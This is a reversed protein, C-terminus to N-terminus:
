KNSCDGQLIGRAGFFNSNFLIDLGIFICVWVCFAMLRVCVGHHSHCNMKKPTDVGETDDEVVAAAGDQVCVCVEVSGCVCVLTTMSRLSVFKYGSQESRGDLQRGRSV